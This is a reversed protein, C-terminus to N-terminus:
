SGKAVVPTTILCYKEMDTAKLTMVGDVIERYVNQLIPLTSNKSAFRMVTDCLPTLVSLPLSFQMM